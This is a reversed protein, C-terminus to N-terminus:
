PPNPVYGSSEGGLARGRTTPTVQGNQAAAPALLVSASILVM